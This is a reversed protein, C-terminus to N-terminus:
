TSLLRHIKTVIIDIAVVNEGGEPIIIDAYIKSPEVFQMHMPRVTQLYQNVVSSVDRGRDRIDRQLRRIFRVDDPTDVFIKIDFLDRLLPIAFIMIGEVIIVNSPLIRETKTARNHEVFDYTPKDIPKGEKLDSLHQLFLTSDYSSPHDYNVKKREELSIHSLDLYYDDLKIVTVSGLNLSQNYLQKAITTKGSATGGAIGIITTKM